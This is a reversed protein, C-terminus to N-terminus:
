LMVGEAKYIYARPEIYESKDFSKPLDKDVYFVMSGIETGNSGGRFSEWSYEIHVFVIDHGKEQANFFSDGEKQEVCIMDGKVILKKFLMPTQRIPASEFEYYLKSQNHSPTFEGTEQVLEFVGLRNLAENVQSLIYERVDKRIEKKM